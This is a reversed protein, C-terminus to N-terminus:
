FSPNKPCKSILGTMRLAACSRHTRRALGQAASLIVALVGSLDSALRSEIVKVCLRERQSVSSTQALMSARQM